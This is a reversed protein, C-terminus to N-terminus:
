FYWVLGPVILATAMERTLPQRTKRQPPILKGVDSSLPLVWIKTPNKRHISARNASSQRPPPRKSFDLNSAGPQVNPQHM